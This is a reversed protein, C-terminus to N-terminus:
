AIKSLVVKIHPQWLLNQHIIFRLFKTHEVRQITSHDICITLNSFNIKKRSPHFIIFKTKDLHLLRLGHLLLPFNVILLALYNLYIIISFFPPPTMLLSSWPFYPILNLSIMIYILFLLPGLVSAQPLGCKITQLSSRCNALELFQCRSNLYDQFWSM